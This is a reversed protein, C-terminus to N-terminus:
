FRVWENEAHERSAQSDRGNGDVVTAGRVPIRASTTAYASVQPSRAAVHVATHPRMEEREHQLRFFAMLQQLSEAQSALEEATSSLEEAASANRQTVQDVQALARNIQTVGSAQESSAATVEQVLEATKRINPVLESLLQGSKAAVKVSNGALTSIEKAATQSREALKRVETAVVAFGRGHEGARAAEIAANLALLNTQYAIEEIISIKEAILNMAEVTENVAGGSDVADKSGRKAMQEMQSSNEANQTISASMQELSSTTEEVSAAQESTGQSLSQSSGAVQAAASSLANAGSRVEGIVQSLRETMNRMSALMQGTEDTSTFDVNATMDGAALRNALDVALRLGKTIGASIRWAVLLALVVSAIAVILTVRSASEKAKKGAAGAAANERELLDSLAAMERELNAFARNFGPLRTSAAAADSGALSVLTEGERIYADLPAQLDVVAKAVAGTPSLAEIAAINERFARAHQQAAENVRALQAADGRGAAYLAAYVDGQLGEHMMDGELNHRLIEAQLSIDGAAHDLQGLGWSGALAVAIVAVIGVLTLGM